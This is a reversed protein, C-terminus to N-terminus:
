RAAKEDDLAAYSRMTTGANPLCSAIRNHILPSGTVVHLKSIGELMNNENASKAPKSGYDSHPCFVVIRKHLLTIPIGPHDVLRYLLFVWGGHLLPSIRIVLTPFM